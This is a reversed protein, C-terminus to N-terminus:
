TGSKDNDALFDSAQYSGSDTVVKSRDDSRTPM